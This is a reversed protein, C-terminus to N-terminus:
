SKSLCSCLSKVSKKIDGNNEEICKIFKSGVIAGSAYRFAESLTDHNSIGFGILFRNHLKLSSLRKFYDVQEETFRDRVGTTSASSVAYIFGDCGEDIMRIREESTEPTVLMIVPISYKQCLPKFDREYDAFPLDPIIMGDVGAQVCREFLNEIGFKMMPNLYGMLILPTDPIEARVSEIDDLVRNLTMGNRLAAASSGQIVKGDAMPDSFPVGVEIMDVGETSLSRMIEASSDLTPYGATFYVSLIENPKRGFLRQLRTTKM